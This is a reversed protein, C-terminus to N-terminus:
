TESKGRGNGDAKEEGNGGKLWLPLGAAVFAVHPCAQALLQNLRGQRDRFERGLPTDPVLGMGVENSVLFVPREFARLADLLRHSQAEVDLGALMLNSLWLTLCDILVAEQPRAQALAEVLDLPAELTRWGAGRESQHQRIRVRMEADHAQATAVYLRQPAASECLSQALASKGSRAGGLILTPLILTPPFLTSM